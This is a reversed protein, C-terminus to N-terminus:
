NRCIGTKAYESTESNVLEKYEDYTILLNIIKLLANSSMKEPLGLCILFATRKAKSDPKGSIGDEYFDLNTIRRSEDKVPIDGSQTIGAREFASIIIDDPIGEVGLKGEASPKTKRKEKGYLDPIYVNTIYEDPIKNGLFNRIMFGASDGDTMVILGHTKALKLLLDQKEKNKFIGFGDTKIIPADIIGSLKIEDYKGEVVIVKDTHLM